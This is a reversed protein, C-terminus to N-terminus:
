LFIPALTVEILLSEVRVCSGRSPTLRTGSVLGALFALMAGTMVTHASGHPRRAPSDGDHSVSEAPCAFATAKAAQSEPVIPAPCFSDLKRGSHRALQKVGDLESTNAEDVINGAEVMHIYTSLCIQCGSLAVSGSGLKLFNEVVAADDPVAPRSRQRM